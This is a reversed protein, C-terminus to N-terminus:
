LVTCLAYTCIRIPEKGRATRRGERLQMMNNQEPDRFKRSLSPGGRCWCNFASIHYGIRPSALPHILRSSRRDDPSFHLVGPHARSASGLRRGAVRLKSSDRAHDVRVNLKGIGRRANNWQCPSLMARRVSCISNLEM